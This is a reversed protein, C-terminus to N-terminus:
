DVKLDVALRSDLSEVCASWNLGHYNLWTQFAQELNSKDGAEVATFMAKARVLLDHLPDIEVIQLTASPNAKASVALMPGVISLGIKDGHHISLWEEHDHCFSIDKKSYEGEKDKNTKLEFGFASLEGDGSWIVDPGTGKAKDPREAHLGLLGGLVRLAEEAKKTEPGYVLDAEVQRILVPINHKSSRYYKALNNAQQGIEKPLPPKFAPERKESPRGLQSLTNAATIFDYLAGQRDDDCMLALGRWHHYWAALRLDHIRAHEALESYTGAAQQYQGQWLEVFAKQEQLILEIYWETAPSSVNIEFQDINEDYIEDWNEHGTLVGEMLDDWTLNGMVVQKSLEYALLLQQQLLTPLYALNKPTRVWSQLQPGVLLVVGHDTNSRFIRGIAQVVRTATHSIRITEVRINEDIFRDFLNEGTPLRDLILIKCADGPLDIGDYRAVLVLMEAEKSKRFRDIEGQGSDTDYINGPPIWEQGRNHSPTIVCCKQDEVLLKAKNRQEEDDKGETFVFLRQAEGSKGSPKIIIPEAIGFTRAFSAQSPLTATLYVRRTGRQFYNLQSLPLVPPTIEIGTGDAVICCHNLHEKLHEWAFLTGDNEDVDLDLLTRRFENAHAWVVFMPVFLVSTFRGEAVDEFHGAQSSNTFHRRCIQLIRGFAEHDCPISLTFQGRIVNGAVHADDFVLADIDENRFISKGNFLTAYNTICFTNGSEYGERNCWEGKYRTATSLGIEKAQDETQEVLLNNPCVYFVHGKTENVLSQAMLLGVLTKGGGTNMQVLIDAGNRNRHWEKLADAQPEWINEISGRLTLKKFIELPDIPRKGSPVLLKIKKLTM